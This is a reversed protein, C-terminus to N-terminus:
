YLMYFGGRHSGYFELTTSTMVQPNQFCSWLGIAWPFSFIHPILKGALGCVETGGDAAGDYNDPSFIRPNKLIPEQHMMQRAWSGVASEGTEDRAQKLFSMLATGGTGKLKKKADESSSATAINRRSVVPSESRSRSRKESSKIVIYRSVIKIHTERFASLMALCADYAMTLDSDNSRADVFDRINAVMTVDELFRRHPGPMYKRMDHLFNHKAPPATGELESESTIDKKEGTPRHEIGLVIDFFQILSSQANSGGSLQRYKETGTGNEYIVGNPLGADAMNKSGALFPRIRHYFVHPDCSENMRQLISGLDDLGAAFERLCQTVTVSDKLRASQVATLMLPILPGGRAEIAVSVLYFWSEDISGTFTTLTAINELEDLEEDAFLPKFNWLCVAAYTAV